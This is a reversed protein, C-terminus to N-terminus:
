KTSTCDRATYFIDLLKDEDRIADELFVVWSLEEKYVDGLIDKSPELAEVKSKREILQKRRFENMSQSSEIKSELFKM